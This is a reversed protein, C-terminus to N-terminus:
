AQRPNQCRRGQRGGIFQAIFDQNVERNASLAMLVQMEPFGLDLGSGIQREAYLRM